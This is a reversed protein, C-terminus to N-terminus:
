IHILSLPQYTPQFAPAPTTPQPTTPIPPQVPATPTPSPAYATPYAPYTTPYLPQAGGIYSPTTARLSILALPFTRGMEEARRKERELAAMIMDVVMFAEQETFRRGTRARLLMNMMWGPDFYGKMNIYECVKRVFEEDCGWDTLIEAIVQSPEKPEEFLSPPRKPAPQPSPQPSPQPPQPPVQEQHQEGTDEYKVVYTTGPPLDSRIFYENCAPCKLAPDRRKRKLFYEVEQGCKPCKTM